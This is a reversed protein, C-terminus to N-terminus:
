KENQFLLKVKVLDGDIQMELEGHQMKMLSEAISLGLGSGETTRASDGRVFREMLEDVTMNLPEASINKISVVPNKAKHEVSIYVRTGEQAYKCVNGLLNDLVRWLHKGDAQAICDDAFESVLILNKRSFRQEYEAIAQSVAEVLDTEVLEVTINGTTARSAEVLDEILKKMRMCQRQLLALHERKEEESPDNQLLEVTTVMSTLPTKIDHSVNTILETKMRESKMKEEVALGIGDGIANLTEGYKKCDFYMHKTDIKGDFRGTALSSAGKQLQKMQWAVSCFFLVIVLNYLVFVSWAFFSTMSVMGLITNVGCVLLALALTRWIMPLREMAHVILKRLKQVVFQSSRWILTNKFFTKTRVRVACTELTKVLMYSLILSSVQLTSFFVNSHLEVSNEFIDQMIVLDVGLLFLGILMVLVLYVDTPIKDWATLFYGDVGKRKGASLILVGLSILSVVTLGMFIPILNESFRKFLEYERVMRAMSDNVTLPDQLGVSIEYDLYDTKKLFQYAGTGFTSALEEGTNVDIIALQINNNEVSFQEELIRLRDKRYGEIAEAQAESYERDVVTSATREGEHQNQDPNEPFEHHTTTEEQAQVHLTLEKPTASYTVIEEPANSQFLLEGANHYDYLWSEVRSETHTRYRWTEDFSNTEFVEWEMCYILSIGSAMTATLILVTFLKHLIQFWDKQTKM